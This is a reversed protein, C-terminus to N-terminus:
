HTMKYGDGQRRNLRIGRPDPGDEAASLCLTVRTEPPPLFLGHHLCRCLSQSLCRRPDTFAQWASCSRSRTRAVYSAFGGGLAPAYRHRRSLISASVVGLELIERGSSKLATLDYENKPISGGARTAMCRRILRNLCWRKARNKRDSLCCIISLDDYQHSELQKTILWSGGCWNPSLSM